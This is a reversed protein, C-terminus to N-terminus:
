DTTLALFMKYVREARRLLSLCQVYNIKNKNHAFDNRIFKFITNLEEQYLKIYPTTLGSNKQILQKLHYDLLSRGYKTVKHHSKIEDEIFVLVDRVATDFYQIEVLKIVWELHAHWKFEEGLYVQKLAEFGKETVKMGTDLIQAMKPYPSEEIIDTVLPKPFFIDGSPTHVYFGSDKETVAYGISLNSKKFTEYCLLRYELDDEEFVGQLLGQRKLVILDEDWISVYFEGSMGVKFLKCFDVGDDLHFRTNDPYNCLVELAIVWGHGPPYIPWDAHIAEFGYEYYMGNTIFFNENKSM